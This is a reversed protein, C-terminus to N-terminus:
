VLANLDEVAGRFRRLVEHSAEKIQHLKDTVTVPEKQDHIPPDKAEQVKNSPPPSGIRSVMDNVGSVLDNMEALNGKVQNMMQYVQKEQQAEMILYTLQSKIHIFSPHGVM